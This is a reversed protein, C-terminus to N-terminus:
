PKKQARTKWQAAAAAHDHDPDAASWKEYLDILNRTCREDVDAPVHQKAADLGSRAGVLLPEAEAFRGQKMISEGLMMRATVTDVHEPGLSKACGDVAKRLMEEAEVYKGTAIFLGSMNQMATLTLRHDPGLARTRGMLVERHLPEAEAFKGEAVLVVGLNNATELTEPHEDGRIRRRTALVERFLTEAQDFNGLTRYVAGLNSMCTLARPDDDGKLRRYREAADKFYPEAEAAKGQGYLALGINSLTTLNGADDPGFARERGALVERFCKEAAAADGRTYLLMGLNNLAILTKPHDPGLARRSRELTERYLPEALDLRSQARYLIGLASIAVITQENDDGLERRQIALGEKLPAEAGALMGMDEMTDAITLLLGAKVLPQDDFQADLAQIAREFVSKELTARAVDTFSADDLLTGLRSQHNKIQDDSLGAKELTRRASILLDERIQRGMGGVDIGRLQSAQFAATRDAQERAEVAEAAAARAADRERAALRAQWLSVGLGALLAAAVLSGALVGGRHRRVFKRLRYGASPPAAEVPQGRLCRDVDAALNGASDYRRARDKELARMVIWDLDGRVMSSLRNPDARRAAAVKALTQKSQGLRTSPTPPDDERIMRQMEGFAASRLRRPDLPTVGSLLEYLLVGLSYVDSRTDIDLSGSAQEPSMYEPTGILQRFETFVTKDTLPRQTAKAIGFDIIRSHARGDQEVVLVNSPKIDRHIVGKTHAHQVARCVQTFLALREPISLNKADCYATIPEGKVLEMVFYPRGSPTAGADLVKAINPHDMMALAQREAEFRAVVARTDMGLKIIKLAVMRRVPERQEAMFVVGFGGEGIQELLRYRGISRGPSEVTAAESDCVAVPEEPVVTPRGLFGGASAVASLLSKVEALLSEDGAAHSTLYEAREDPPRETAGAVLEAVRRNRDANGNTSGAM